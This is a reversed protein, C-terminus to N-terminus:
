HRDRAKGPEGLPRLSFMVSLLFHHQFHSDFGHHSCRGQHANRERCIRLVVGDAGSRVGVLVIFVIVTQDDELVVDFARGVACDCNFQEDAGLKTGVTCLTQLADSVARDVHVNRGRATSCTDERVNLNQVKRVQHGTVAHSFGNQSTIEGALHAVHRQRIGVTGDTQHGDTVGTAPPVEGVGLTNHPVGTVESTQLDTGNNSVQRLFQDTGEASGRRRNWPRLQERGELGANDFSGLVADSVDHAHLERIGAQLVHGEIAM